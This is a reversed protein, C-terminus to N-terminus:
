ESKPEIVYHIKARTWRSLPLQEVTKTLEAALWGGRDSAAGAEPKARDYDAKEAFAYSVLTEFAPVGPEALQAEIAIGAQREAASPLV